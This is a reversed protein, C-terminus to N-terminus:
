DKIQSLYETLADKWPRLKPLKTNNLFGYRPRKALRPFSEGPVPVVSTSVGALRLAEKALDYWSATGENVVHYVGFPKQQRIIEVSARALDVVYTPRSSEDEVAKIEPKTKSLELIMDVFSPKSIEGPGKKGFLWSTRIIYYRDTKGAIEKEGLVKSKGYNNIPDSPADEDYGDKSLGNFVYDSSYHVLAAGIQECAEAIYGPAFGNLVNAPEPNEEASDSNNFAACNFVVSPKLETIKQLVEERRTIDMEERDWGVAESGLQRMLESGLNGNKGIVLIKEM